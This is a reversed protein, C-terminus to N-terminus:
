AVSQQKSPILIHLGQSQEPYIQINNRHMISKYVLMAPRSDNRTAVGTPSHFAAIHGPNINQAAMSETYQLQRKWLSCQLYTDTFPLGPTM